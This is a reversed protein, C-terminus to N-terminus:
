ITEALELYRCFANAMEMQAPTNCEPELVQPSAVLVCICRARSTAVNLRNLNYLFNMGRPADTHTSTTMSYIVVPAEQGQFKDVTGVRAGPLRKQIELVQLNYPAIILIDTLALMRERGESDIWSPRSELLEEVLQQIQEAEEPSSNQNGDHAVPLFRLGAGQIRSVSKLIQRELGPRSQLRGEYFLDSTFACIDPHLRWTEGLFLGIDADITAKGELLHDLASVGTGDPHSGQMPQELQQPDGLLVLAKCGQSVALVNALSMQAAEDVFLVDVAEFADERAWLWATGGAVQCEGARLVELTEENDGTLRIQGEAESPESVKQICRVDVGMKQCAEVVRDLVNRITRHGNATVGVRKGANVLACIMRAAAHTKGAGPPGQIALVGRTLAPAIRVAADAAHEDPMLLPVGIAPRRRLLLDCAARYAGEGSFGHEVVYAGIRLLAGPLVGPSVQRVGFLSKPHIAATKIRKKVDITRAAISIEALEGLDEGGPLFLKEEGRLDVDQAPFHYRHIPAKATGGVQGVLVLGALGAREELLDEAPLDALRYREWWTPKQERRHWDLTHALIWRGHQDPSRSAIDAPVGEILRAVLKALQQQREDLEESPEPSTAVPRPIAVSRAVLQDRIGELWNRLGLASLCDDRNYGAITSQMAVLTHSTSDVGDSGTAAAAPWDDLDLRAQLYALARRAESLEVARRYGFFVELSKISYSEVSARVSQRTITFLDVFLSARLMRDIEDECMAYRGMLRKLAAPEYSAYHYIHM